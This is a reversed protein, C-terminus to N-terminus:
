FLYGLSMLSKTNLNKLGETPLADYQLEEEISLNINKSIAIDFGITGLMEYDDFMDSLNQMTGLKIHLNSNENIKNHYEIYENMSEYKKTAKNSSYNETNHALGIKIKLSHSDHNILRKGIGLNASIKYDYNRINPSKLWRAFVYGLWERYIVQEAGVDILYEENRKKNKGKSFYVNSLLSFKLPLDHYGSQAFSLTYRGNFYTSQANGSTSSFGFHLNQKLPEKINLGTKLFYKKEVNSTTFQSASCLTSLSQLIGAIFVIKKYM